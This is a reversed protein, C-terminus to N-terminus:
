ARLRPTRRVKAFIGFNTSKKDDWPKKFTTGLNLDKRRQDRPSKRASGRHLKVVESSSSRADASGGDSGLVEVEAESPPADTEVEDESMETERSNVKNKPRRKVGGRKRRRRKKKGFEPVMGMAPAGPPTMPEEM